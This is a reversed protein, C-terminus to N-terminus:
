SFFVGIKENLSKIGYYGFYELIKDMNKERDGKINPLNPIEDDMKKLSRALMVRDKFILAMLDRKSKKIKKLEYEKLLAIHKQNFYIEPYIFSGRETKKESFSFFEERSLTQNFGVNSSFSSELNEYFSSIDGYEKIASFSNKEGWGPIGFINDSKDGMLSCADVYQEPTIGYKDIFDEKNFFSEKMGDWILVNDDLIQYFDKDSSIVFVRNDNDRKLLNCYSAIIDDAEYGDVSIQPIGIKDLANKLHVSTKFWSSLAEHPEKKKRNQKYAEKIIGLEVGAESEKARRKSKNDWAVLFCHNDFRKKFSILSNFFGFHAGSLVGDKNKMSDNAFACRIALNNGDILVYNM